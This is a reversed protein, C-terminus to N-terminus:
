HENDGNAPPTQSLSTEDGETENGDNTSNSPQAANPSSPHNHVKLHSTEISQTNSVCNNSREGCEVFAHHEPSGGYQQDTPTL